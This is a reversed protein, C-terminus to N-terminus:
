TLTRIVHHDKRCETDIFRINKELRFCQVAKHELLVINKGGITM